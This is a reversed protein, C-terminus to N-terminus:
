SFQQQTKARTTKKRPTQPIDAQKEGTLIEALEDVEPQIKQILKTDERAKSVMTLLHDRIELDELKDQYLHGCEILKKIVKENPTMVSITLAVRKWVEPEDNEKFRGCLKEVLLETQKEKKNLQELLFESIPHIPPRCQHTEPDVFIESFKKDCILKKDFICINTV